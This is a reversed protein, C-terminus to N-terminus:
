NLPGSWNHCLRDQLPDLEIRESNFEKKIQPIIFSDTKKKDPGAIVKGM